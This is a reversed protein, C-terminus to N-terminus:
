GEACGSTARGGRGLCVVGPLYPREVHGGDQSRVLETGFRWPGAWRGIVLDVLVLRQFGVAAEDTEAAGQRAQAPSRCAVASFADGLDPIQVHEGLWGPHRSPFVPLYTEGM